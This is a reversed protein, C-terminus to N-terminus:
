CLYAQPYNTKLLSRFFAILVLMSTSTKNEVLVQLLIFANLVLMSISTKNEILKLLAFFSFGVNQNLRCMETIFFM